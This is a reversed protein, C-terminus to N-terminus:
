TASLYYTRRLLDPNDPDFALTLTFLDAALGVERMKDAHRGALYSGYSSIESFGASRITAPAPVRSIRQVASQPKDEFIGIQGCGAALLVLSVM